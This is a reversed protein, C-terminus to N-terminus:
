TRLVLGFFPQSNSRVFILPSACNMLSARVISTFRLTHPQVFFGQLHQLPMTCVVLKHANAGALGDLKSAANGTESM